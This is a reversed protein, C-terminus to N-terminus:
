SLVWKKAVEGTTFYVEGNFRFLQGNVSPLFMIETKIGTTLNFKNLQGAVFTYLFGNEIAANTTKIFTADISFVSNLFFLNGVGRTLKWFDYDNTGTIDSNAENTGYLSGNTDLYFYPEFDTGTNAFTVNPTITSLDLSVDCVVYENSTPRFSICIFLNNHLFVDNLVLSGDSLSVRIAQQLEYSSPLDSMLYGEEKYYMKDTDNFSIPSGLPTFVTDSVEQLKNLSFAVVGDSKIVIMVQESAKFGDSSFALTPGDSGGFTYSETSVYNDTVKAFCVFGDPLISLKIPLTWKTGDLTLVHNVDNIENSFKKFADVLQFQTDANDEIDNPTIGALQIVRYLNMLIDGYIERVVPTGDITDTENQINANFPYKSDVDKAVLLNGLVKM